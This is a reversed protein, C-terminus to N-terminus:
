ANTETIVVNTKIYRNVVISDEVFGHPNIEIHTKETALQEEISLNSYPDYKIEFTITAKIM